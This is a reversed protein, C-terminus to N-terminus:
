RRVVVRPGHRRLGTLRGRRGPLAPARGRRHNRGERATGGGDLNLPLGANRTAPDPPDNQVRGNPWGTSLRVTMIGTFSHNRGKRGPVVERHDYKM